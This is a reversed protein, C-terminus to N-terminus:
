DNKDLSNKIPKENSRFIYFSNPIISSIPLNYSIAIFNKKQEPALSGFERGVSFNFNLVNIGIVPAFVSNSSGDPTNNSVSFLFGVQGSFSNKFKKSVVRNNTDTTVILRGAGLSVGAGVSNFAAVKAENGRANEHFNVRITPITFSTNWATVKYENTTGPYLNVPFNEAFDADTQAHVTLGLLAFIPILILKKM